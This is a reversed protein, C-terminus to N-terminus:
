NDAVEHIGANRFHARAQRAGGEGTGSEKVAWELFAQYTLFRSRERYYHRKIFAKLDGFSEEILNFDPSYLPLFHVWVGQWRAIEVVKDQIAHHVSANDM